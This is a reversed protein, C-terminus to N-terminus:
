NTEEGTEAFRYPDDALGDPEPNNKFDFNSDGDIDFPDQLDAPLPDIKTNDNLDEGPDLVGNGNVDETGEGRYANVRSVSVHGTQGFVSVLRRDAQVRTEGLGVWDPNLVTIEDLPVFPTGPVQADFSTLGGSLAAVFQEKLFQSDERDCVYLHLLGAGATEGILNGQPSFMLDMFPSYRGNGTSFPRWGVPLRSADLDIVVDEPLVCPEEPLVQWPLEIEYTINQFPVFETIDGPDAYPLQLLLLQQENPKTIPDDLVENHNLDEGEDLIGNSNIDEKTIFEFPYLNGNPGAPIRIRLNGTLFGRDHLKWWGPYNKSRVILISQENADVDSNNNRDIRELSVLGSDRGSAWTIRSGIYAMTSVTRGNPITGSVTPEVFLRVGVPAQSYVARNQAGKLYSQIQRAGEKIRDAQSNYRLATLTITLLITVVSIVLLLEILTFGSPRQKRRQHVHQRM